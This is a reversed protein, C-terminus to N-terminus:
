ITDEFILGALEELKQRLKVIEESPFQKILEGSERDTIRVLVDDTEKHLSLGLRNGMQALHVEVVAVAKALEEATMPKEAELQEHLAKNDLATESSDSSDQVPTVQPRDRDEVEVAPSVPIGVIKVDATTNIDM